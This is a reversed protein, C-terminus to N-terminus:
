YHNFFQEAKVIWADRNEGLFTPLEMRVRAQNNERVTNREGFPNSMRSIDFSGGQVFHDDNEGRFPEENM